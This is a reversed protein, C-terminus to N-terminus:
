AARWRIGSSPLRANIADTVDDLLAPARKKYVYRALARPQRNGAYRVAVETQSKSWPSLEVAVPVGAGPLPSGLRTRVRRAPLLATGIAAPDAHDASGLSGTADDFLAEAVAVPLEVVRSLHACAYLADMRAEEHEVPTRM